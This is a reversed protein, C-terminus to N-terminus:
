LDEWERNEPKPADDFGIHLNVAEIMKAALELDEIPGLGVFSIYSNKSLLERLKGLREVLGAPKGYPSEYTM